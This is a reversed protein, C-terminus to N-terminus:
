ENEGGMIRKVIKIAERTTHKCPLPDDGDNHVCCIQAKRFAEILEYELKEKDLSIM